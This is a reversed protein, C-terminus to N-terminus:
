MCLWCHRVAGGEKYIMSITTASEKAAILGEEACRAAEDKTDQPVDNGARRVQIIWSLIWRYVLMRGGLYFSHLYLGSIRAEPSVISEDLSELRIHKPVKALWEDLSSRVAESSKPSFTSTRM